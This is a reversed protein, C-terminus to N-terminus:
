YKYLDNYLDESPTFNGPFEEFAKGAWNVKYIRFGKTGRHNQSTMTIPMTLGDMRANKISELADRLAKRADIVTMDSTIKAKELGRVLFMAGAWGAVFQVPKHSEGTFKQIIKVGEIDGQDTFAVPSSAFYDRQAKAADVLKLMIKNATFFLGCFRAKMGLKKAEKLALVTPKVTMECMVYDVNKEKVRAMESAASMAKSHILESIVLEVGSKKFANIKKLRDLDPRTGRVHLFAVRPKAIGRNKADNRIWALQSLCEEAYSGAISFGYPHLKGVVAESRAAASIIPVHKEEAKTLLLPVDVSGWGILGLMNEKESLREFGSMSKQVNYQYDIAIIETQLGNIGGKKNVYRFYDRAGDAFPAGVISTPGTIDFLGGVKITTGVKPAALAPCVFFVFFGMLLFVIGTLRNMRM